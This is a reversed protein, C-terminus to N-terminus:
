EEDESPSDEEDDPPLPLGLLTQADGAPLIEVDRLKRNMVNTRTGLEDITNSAASLQKKLKGVVKGHDQFEKRVAGLIQWVESSRKQIALSRFGMQYANLMSTLTTPGALTVRFERQLQEQLGPRRLVEAFLGETPLYLIAFDTTAPPAIYKEHISKASTRVSKELAEAALKLVEVDGRESAEV